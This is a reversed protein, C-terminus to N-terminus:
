FCSQLFFVHIQDTESTQLTDSVSLKTQNEVLLIDSFESIFTMWFTVRVQITMYCILLSSSLTLCITAFKLLIAEFKIFALHGDRVFNQDTESTQRIECFFDYIM